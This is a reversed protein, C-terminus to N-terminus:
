GAPPLELSLWSLGTEVLWFLELGQFQIGVSAPIWPSCVISVCRWCTPRTRQQDLTDPSQEGRTGKVQCLALAKSIAPPLPPLGLSGGGHRM